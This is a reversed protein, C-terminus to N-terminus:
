FPIEDDGCTEAPPEWRPADMGPERIGVLYDRGLEQRARVWLRRAMQLVRQRDFQAELEDFGTVDDPVDTAREWDDSLRRLAARLDSSAPVETLGIPGAEGAPDWWRPPGVEDFILVLRRRPGRGAEVLDPYVGPDELEVLDVPAFLVEIEL